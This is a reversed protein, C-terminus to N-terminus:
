NFCLLVAMVKHVVKIFPILSPLDVSVPHLEELPAFNKEPVLESGIQEHFQPFPAHDVDPCPRRHVYALSEWLDERWIVACQVFTRMGEIFSKVREVM